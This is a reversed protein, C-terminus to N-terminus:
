KNAPVITLLFATEELAEVSHRIHEQLTLMERKALVVPDDQTHFKLKGELVQVSIPGNAQHPKIESGKKMVNLVIRMGKMKSITRASRGIKEWSEEEKLAQVLPELQYTCLSQSEEAGAQSGSNQPEENM